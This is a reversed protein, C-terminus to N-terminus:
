QRTLEFALASSAFVDALRELDPPQAVVYVGALIFGMALLKRPATSLQECLAGHYRQRVEAPFFRLLTICSLSLGLILVPTSAEIM